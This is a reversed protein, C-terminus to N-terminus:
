NLQKMKQTLFGSDDVIQKMSKFWFIGKQKEYLWNKFSFFTKYFPQVETLWQQILEQPYALFEPSKNELLEVQKLSEPSYGKEKNSVFQKFGEIDQKSGLIHIQKSSKVIYETGTNTVGEREGIIGDNNKSKESIRNSDIYTNNLIVQKTGGGVEKATAPNTINVIATVVDGKDSTETPELSFDDIDTYSFYDAAEQNGTFYIGKGFTGKNSPILDGTLKSKSGHYVIDKVKSDPFITDLYQSYLQQAQQKYDINFKLSQEDATARNVVGEKILSNWLRRADASQQEPDSFLVGGQLNAQLNLFKYLKKGLGKNRFKEDLKVGKITKNKGEFLAVIGIKEDNYIVDYTNADEPHKENNPTLKFNKIEIGLAEYVANALEPNSEFLEAVGPKIATDDEQKNAILPQGKESPSFDVNPVIGIALNKENITNNLQAIEMDRNVNPINLYHTRLVAKRYLEGEAMRSVINDLGGQSTYKEIGRNHVYSLVAVKESFNLANFQDAVPSNQIQQIYSEVVKTAIQTSKKLSYLDDIAYEIGLKKLLREQFQYMGISPRKNSLTVTAYVSKLKNGLKSESAESKFDQGKIGLGWSSEQGALVYTTAVVLDKNATDQVSQKAEELVLSANTGFAQGTEWHAFMNNLPTLKNISLSEPNNFDTVNTYVGISREVLYKPRAIQAIKIGTTSQNNIVLDLREQYVKGHINHEVYPEGNIYRIFGLHTHYAPIKMSNTETYAKIHNGSNVYFLGVVDGEMAVYNGIGEHTHSNIARRIQGVDAKIKKKSFNPNDYINYMFKGGKNVIFQTETWANGFLGQEGLFNLLSITAKFVNNVYEACENGAECTALRENKESITFPKLYDPNFGAFDVKNSLGNHIKKSLEEMGVITKNLYHQYYIDLIAADISIGKELAHNQIQQIEEKLFDIDKKFQSVQMVNYTVVEIQNQDTNTISFAKVVAEKTKVVTFHASGYILAAFLLKKVLKKLFNLVAPSYKKLNTVGKNLYKNVFEVLSKVKEKSIVERRVREIEPRTFDGTQVLQEEFASDQEEPTLKKGEKDTTPIYDPKENVQEGVLEEVIGENIVEELQEALKNNQEEETFQATEQELAAIEEDYKANVEKIDEDNYMGINENIDEQRRREIDAKKAEVNVTSKQIEPKTLEQVPKSNAIEDLYNPLSPFDVTEINNEAIAELQEVELEVTELQQVSDIPSIQPEVEELLADWNVKERNNLNFSIVVSAIYNRIRKIVNRLTISPKNSINEQLAVETPIVVSQTPNYARDGLLAKDANNFTFNFNISILKDLLKALRIGKKGTENELQRREKRTILRKFIDKFNIPKVKLKSKLGDLLKNIYDKIIFHSKNNVVNQPTTNVPITINSEIFDKVVNNYEKQIYEKKLEEYRQWGKNETVRQQILENNAKTYRFSKEIENLLEEETYEGPKIFPFKESGLFNIKCAM